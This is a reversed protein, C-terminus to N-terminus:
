VRMRSKETIQLENGVEAFAKEYSKQNFIFSDDGAHSYTFIGRSDGIQELLDDFNAPASALTVTNGTDPNTYMVKRTGSSATAPTKVASGAAHKM